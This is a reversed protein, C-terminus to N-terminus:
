LIPNILTAHMLVCAQCDGPERAPQFALSELLQERQELLMPVLAILPATGGLLHPSSDEPSGSGHTQALVSSLSSTVDIPVLLLQLHVRQPLAFKHTNAPKRRKVNM